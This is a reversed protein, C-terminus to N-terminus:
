AHSAILAAQSRQQDATGMLLLPVNPPVNKLIIEVLMRADLLGDELGVRQPAQSATEPPKVNQVVVCSARGGLTELARALHDEADHLMDSELLAAPALALMAEPRDNLFSAVRHADCLVHRAHPRVLLEIGAGDCVSMARDLWAHLAVLGAPLWTEPSRDFLGGGLAGSWVILRDGPAPEGADPLWPDEELINQHVLGAYPTRRDGLTVGVRSYVGWAEDAIGVVTRVGSM